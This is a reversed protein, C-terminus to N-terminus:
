EKDGRPTQRGFSRRYWDSFNTLGSKRCLAGEADYVWHRPFRSAGVLESEVRGDAHLTLSLTTWVLPARWQVFPKRRVRRPAPVGTHGGTTQTFRVFARDREMARQIDPLAIAEFRRTMPGIRVTTAGMAGGGDYGCGTITGEPNVDIWASLRNAFRFRDALRLADLDELLAPPPPDYHTVGMDFPLRMTGEIAESPIWSLSTISGQHRM